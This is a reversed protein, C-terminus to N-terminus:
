HANWFHKLNIYETFIINNLISLTKFNNNEVLLATGLETYTPSDCWSFGFMNESRTQNKLLVYIVEPKLTLYERKWM